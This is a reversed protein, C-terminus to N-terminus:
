SILGMKEGYPQRLMTTREVCTKTVPNIECRNKIRSELLRQRSSHFMDRKTKTLRVLEHNMVARQAGETAVIAGLGALSRNVFENM